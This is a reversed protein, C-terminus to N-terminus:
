ISAPGHAGPVVRCGGDPDQTRIDVHDLRISRLRWLRGMLMLHEDYLLCATLALSRLAGGAHGAAGGGSGGGGGSGAAGGRAATHSGAVAPGHDVAAATRLRPSAPGSAVDGTRRRRRLSQTQANQGQACHHHSGHHHHHQTNHSHHLHDHHHGGRTARGGNSRGSGCARGVAALPEGEGDAEAGMDVESGRQEHDVDMTGATGDSSEGHPAGGAAAARGFAVAAGNTLDGAWRGDGRWRPGAPCLM